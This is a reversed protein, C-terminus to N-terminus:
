DSTHFAAELAADLEVPTPVPEHRRRVLLTHRGVIPVDRRIVWRLMVHGGAPVSWAAEGGTESDLVHAWRVRDGNGAVEELRLGLAEDQTRGLTAAAAATLDVIRREDDVVIISPGGGPPLRPAIEFAEYTEIGQTTVWRALEDPYAPRATDGGTAEAIAAHDRWVGVILAEVDSGTVRRAVQSAILGADALRQQIERLMEFAAAEQNPRTMLSLIRLVSTSTPLSAFTRSAVEYTDARDVTLALGFRDRLFSAEDRGLATLMTDPDRWTTVIVGSGPSSPGTPPWGVILTELGNVRAAGRGLRERIREPPDAAADCTFRGHIM